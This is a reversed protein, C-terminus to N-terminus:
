YKRRMQAQQELARVNEAIQLAYDFDNIGQDIMIQAAKEIRHKRADYQAEGFDM